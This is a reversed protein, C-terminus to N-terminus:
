RRSRSGTVADTVVGEVPLTARYVLGVLLILLPVVSLVGLVIAVRVLVKRM